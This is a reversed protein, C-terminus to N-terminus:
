WGEHTSLSDEAQPSQTMIYVSAPTLANMRLADM